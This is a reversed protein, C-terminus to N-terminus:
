MFAAPSQAGVAKSCDISCLTRVIDRPFIFDVIFNETKVFLELAVKRM